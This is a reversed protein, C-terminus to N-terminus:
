LDVESPPQTTEAITLVEFKVSPETTKLWELLSVEELSFRCRLETAQAVRGQLWKIFEGMNKVNEANPRLGNEWDACGALVAQLVDNVIDAPEQRRLAAKALLRNIRKLRNRAHQRLNCLRGENLQELLEETQM